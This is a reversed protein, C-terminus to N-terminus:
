YNSILFLDYPMIKLETEIEETIIEKLKNIDIIGYKVYIGINDSFIDSLSLKDESIITREIYSSLYNYHEETIIDLEYYDYTLAEAIGTRAYNLM